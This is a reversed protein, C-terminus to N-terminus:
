GIAPSPSRSFGLCEPARSSSGIGGCGAPVANIPPLHPSIRAPSRNSPPGSCRRSRTLPRPMRSRIRPQLDPRHLQKHSGPEEGMMPSGATASLGEADGDAPRREFALPERSAFGVHPAAFRRFGSVSVDPFRLFTDAFRVQAEPGTCSVNKGRSATMVPFRIFRISRRV